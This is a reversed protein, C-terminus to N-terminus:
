AGMPRSFVSGMIEAQQVAELMVEELDSVTLDLSDWAAEKIPPMFFEGSIGLALARCASDAVHIVAAEAVNEHIEPAHHFLAPLTLSEPLNWRRLAVCGLSAHDYNIVDLEAYHLLIRKKRALALANGASEPLFRFLILRGIDHLLGATFYREGNGLGSREALLRSVVGVAVCHKWFSTLDVLDEPIDQFARMVTAGTALYSLQKTGVMAVARSITDVKSRVSYMPSNVLRLLMAALSPSLSIVEAVDSASSNPDNIVRQLDHFNQPLSPLQLTPLLISDPEVITYRIDLPESGRELSQFFAEERLVCSDKGALGAKRRQIGLTRLAATPDSDADALRLVRDTIQQARSELEAQKPEALPADPEHAPNSTM